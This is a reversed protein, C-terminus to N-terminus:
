RHLTVIPWSTPTLATWASLPVKTSVGSPRVIASCPVTKSTGTGALAAGPEWLVSPSHEGVVVYMSSQSYLHRVEPMVTRRLALTITPADTSSPQALTQGVREPGMSPCRMSTPLQVKVACGDVPSTWYSYARPLAVHQPKM